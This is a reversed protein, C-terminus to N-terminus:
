GIKKALILFVVCLVMDRKLLNLDVLKSNKVWFIVRKNKEIAGYQQLLNITKKFEPAVELTLPIGGELLRVFEIM